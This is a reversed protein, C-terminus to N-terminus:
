PDIVITCTYTGPVLGSTGNGYTEDTDDFAPDAAGNEANPDVPNGNSDACEIHATTVGNGALSKFLVEISSLPTNVFTASPSVSTGAHGDASM